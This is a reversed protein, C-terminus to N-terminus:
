SVGSAQNEYRALIKRNISSTDIVDDGAKQYNPNNKIRMAWDNSIYLQIVNYLLLLVYM